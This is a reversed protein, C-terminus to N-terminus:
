LSVLRFIPKQKAKFRFFYILSVLRFYPLKKAKVRFYIYAFGACGLSISAKKKIV